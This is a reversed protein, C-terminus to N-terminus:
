TLFNNPNHARTSLSLASVYEKLGETCKRLPLLGYAQNPDAFGPPSKRHGQVQGSALHQQYSSAHKGIEQTPRRPPVKTITTEHLPGATTIQLSYHTM